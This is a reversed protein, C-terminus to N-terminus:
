KESSDFSNQHSRDRRRRIDVAIAGCAPTAATTITSPTSAVSTTNTTTSTILIVGNTNNSPLTQLNREYISRIKIIKNTTYAKKDTRPLSLEYSELNTCITEDDEYGDDDDGDVNDYDDCNLYYTRSTFDRFVDNVTEDSLTFDSSKATENLRQLRLLTVIDANALELAVDLPLKGDKDAIM